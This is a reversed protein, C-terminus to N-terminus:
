EEQKWKKFKLLIMGRLCENKITEYNSSHMIGELFKMFAETSEKTFYPCICRLHISKEREVISFDTINWASKKIQKEFIQLWNEKEIKVSLYKGYWSGSDYWKQLLDEKEIMYLKQIMYNLLDIPIICIGRDKELKMIIYFQLIEAPNTQMQYAELAQEFVENTFAFVTKGERATVKIIEQLLDNRVLILRKDKRSSM